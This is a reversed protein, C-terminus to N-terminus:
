ALDSSTADSGIVDPVQSPVNLEQDQIDEAKASLGLSETIPEGSEDVLQKTEVTKRKSAKRAELDKKAKQQKAVQKQKWIVLEIDAAIENYSRNDGKEILAKVASDYKSM